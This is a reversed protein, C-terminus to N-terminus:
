LPVRSAKELTPIPTFLRSFKPNRVMRISFNRLLLEWRQQLRCLNLCALNDEYTGSESGMIIQLCRKQISELRMIQVGNLCCSWACSGYELLSRIHSIYSRKLMERDGGNDRLRMLGWMRRGARACLDEVLPWFTLKSDLLVGLLRTTDNILLPDGNPVSVFPVASFKQSFSFLMISTKKLNLCMELHSSSISVDHLIHSLSLHSAPIGLQKSLLDPNPDFTPVLPVTVDPLSIKELMTTDDVYVNKDCSKRCPPFPLRPRNNACFEHTPNCRQWTPPAVHQVMSPFPPTWVCNVNCTCMGSLPDLPGTCVAPPFPHHVLWVEPPVVHCYTLHTVFSHYYGLSQTAHSCFNPTSVVHTPYSPRRAANPLYVYENYENAANPLSITPCDNSFRDLLHDYGPLCRCYLWNSYVLYIVVTLLGGQPGGGPLLLLESRADGVAVSM